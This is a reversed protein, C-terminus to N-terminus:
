PAAGRKFYLATGLCGWAFLGGMFAKQATSFYGGATPAPSAWSIASRASEPHHASESAAAKTELPITLIDGHGAQRVHIEWTGAQSPDPVFAFNGAPDTTGTLWPTQPDDPSFVSVQAAGMPEGSEFRAQVQLAEAAGYTVQVGHGQVAPAIALMGISLSLATWGNIGM